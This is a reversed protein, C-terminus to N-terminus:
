AQYFPRYGTSSKGYRSIVKRKFGQNKPFVVSHVQTNEMFVAEEDAEQNKDFSNIFKEQLLKHSEGGWIARELSEEKNREQKEGYFTNFMSKGRSSRHKYDQLSQFYNSPRSKRSYRPTVKEYKEEELSEESDKNSPEKKLDPLVATKIFYDIDQLKTSKVKDEIILNAKEYTREKYDLHKNQVVKRGQFTDEDEDSCYNVPDLILNDISPNVKMGLYPTEYGANGLKVSKEDTEEGLTIDNLNDSDSKVNDNENRVLTTFNLNRLSFEIPSICEPENSSSWLSKTREESKKLIKKGRTEPQPNNYGSHLRQFDLKLGDDRGEGSDKDVNGDGELGNERRINCSHAQQNKTKPFEPSHKSVRQDGQSQQDQVPIAIQLKNQIEAINNSSKGKRFDEYDEDNHSWSVINSRKRRHKQKEKHYNEVYKDIKRHIDEEDPFQNPDRDLTEKKFDVWTIMDKVRGGTWQNGM